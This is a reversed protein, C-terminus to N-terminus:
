FELAKEVLAFGPQLLANEHLTMAAMSSSLFLVNERGQSTLDIKMCFRKM